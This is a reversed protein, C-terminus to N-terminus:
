QHRSAVEDTLPPNEAGVSRQAALSEAPFFASVIAGSAAPRVSLRGGLQAARAGMGRLGLGPTFDTLAARPGEDAVRLTLGRRSLTASVRIRTAKAHRHANIFAEQVIHLIARKVQLPLADLEGRVSLDVAVGARLRYGRALEKLSAVLGESVLAAPYALYSLTRIEKFVKALGSRMDAFVAPNPGGRELASLGFDIAVLNQCTTDHLDAAISRREEERILALHRTAEGLAEKAQLFETIDQVIILAPEAGGVSIAHLRWTRGEHVCVSRFEDLRGRLLQRLNRAVAAASSNGATEAEACLDLFNGGLRVRGPEGAGCMHDHLSVINGAPDLRVVSIPLGDPRLATSYPDSVVRAGTQNPAFSRELSSSPPADDIAPDRDLSQKAVLRGGFAHKGVM